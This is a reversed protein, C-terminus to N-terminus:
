KLSSTRPEQSKDRSTGPTPPPTSPRRSSPDVRMMRAIRTSGASLRQAKSLDEMESDSAWGADEFGKEDGKDFHKGEKKRESVPTMDIDEALLKSKKAKFWKAMENLEFADQGRDEALKEMYKEKCDNQWGVYRDAAAGVTGNSNTIGPPLGFMVVDVCSPAAGVFDLAGAAPTVQVVGTNNGSVSSGVFVTFTASVSGSNPVVDTGSTKYIRAPAGIATFQYDMPFASVNNSWTVTVGGTQTGGTTFWWIVQVQWSTGALQSTQFVPGSIASAPFNIYNSPFYGNVMTLGANVIAGTLPNAIPQAIQTGWPKNAGVGTLIAGQMGTGSSTGTTSQSWHMMVPQGSGFGNLNTAPKFLTIDYDVWLEGLTGNAFQGGVTAIQFAGLHKMRPDQGGLTTVSPENSVYLRKLVSSKQKVDCHCVADRSPKVSIVDEFNDMQQKNAFPAHGVNYDIAMIVVGLATNTASLADASTSRYKFTLRNVQYEEFNSAIVSLWPFTDANGPNILWQGPNQFLGATSATGVDSIYEVHKIRVGGPISSQSFRASPSKYARGAKSAFGSSRMPMKKKTTKTSARSVRAKKAYGKRSAKKTSRKRKKAVYKKKRPM